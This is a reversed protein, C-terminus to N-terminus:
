GFLYYTQFPLCAEIATLFINLFVLLLMLNILQSLVDWMGKIGNRPDGQFLNKDSDKPASERFDIVTAKKEDRIYVMM